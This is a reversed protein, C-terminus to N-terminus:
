RTPATSAAVKLIKEQGIDDHLSHIKSGIRQACKMQPEELAFDPDHSRHIIPVGATHACAHFHSRVM